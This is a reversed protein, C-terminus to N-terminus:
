CSYRRLVLFIGSMPCVLSILVGVIIANQMFTYEFM